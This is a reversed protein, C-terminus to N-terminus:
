GGKKNKKKDKFRHLNDISTEFPLFPFFFNFHIQTQQFPTIQPKITYNKKSIKKKINLFPMKWHFINRNM